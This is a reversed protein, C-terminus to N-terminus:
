DHPDSEPAPPAGLRLGIMRTTRGGEPAPFQLRRLARRVCRVVKRDPFQSGNQRVKAIGGQPPVQVELLIRGWLAADRELGKGYCRRVDDLALEVTSRFVPEAISGPNAERFNRVADEDTISVAPLPADGPWLKISLVLNITRRPAPSFDKYDRVQQELCKAAEEDKLESSVLQVRSVRGNPAIRMRLKTQGHDLPNKRVAGEFCIRFDWYGWKRAHALIGHESPVNRRVRGTRRDVPPREPLGRTQIDVDVVVRAGPHFGARSSPYDPDSSGGLNWRALEEDAGAAAVKGKLRPVDTPEYAAEVEVSVDPVPEPAPEPPPSPAVSPAPVGTGPTGPALPTATRIDPSAPVAVAETSSSPSSQLMAAQSSSPTAQLTSTCAILPGCLAALFARNSWM